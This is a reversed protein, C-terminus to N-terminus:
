ELDLAADERLGGKDRVQAKSLSEEWCGAELGKRKIGKELVSGFFEKLFVAVPTMREM